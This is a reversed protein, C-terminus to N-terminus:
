IDSTADFTAGAVGCTRNPDVDFAPDTQIESDLIELLTPDQSDRIEVCIKVTPLRDEDTEKKIEKSETEMLDVSGNTVDTVADVPTERKPRWNLSTDREATMATKDAVDADDDAHVESLETKTLTFEPEPM